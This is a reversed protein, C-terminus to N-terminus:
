NEWPGLFKEEGKSGKFFKQLSIVWCHFVNIYRPPKTDKVWTYKIRRSVSFNPLPENFQSNKRIDNEGKKPHYGSIDKELLHKYIGPM